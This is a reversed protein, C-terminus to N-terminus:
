TSAPNKLRLVVSRACSPCCRHPKQHSSCFSFGFPAHLAHAVNQAQKFTPLGDGMEWRELQEPKVHAAKAATQLDIGVRGRAWRLMSPNIHAQPTAM